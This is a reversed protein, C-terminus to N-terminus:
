ISYSIQLYDIGEEALVDNWSEVIGCSWMSNFAVEM